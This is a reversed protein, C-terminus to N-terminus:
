IKFLTDARKQIYGRPAICMENDNDNDHEDRRESGFFFKLVRKTKKM